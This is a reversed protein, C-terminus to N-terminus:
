RSLTVEHEKAIRYLSDGKQVVYYSEKAKASIKKALNTVQMGFSGAQLPRFEMLSREKLLMVMNHDLAQGFQVSSDETLPCRWCKM